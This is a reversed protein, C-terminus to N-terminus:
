NNKPPGTFVVNGGHKGSGPGLTIIWDAKNIVHINHEVVVITHGAEILRDFAHMLREIDSTHLGTTPEDFIFFIHQMKNNQSLYYALKVRQSEGGSLTSSSQGLKVYGLGVDSLPSLKRTISICQPDESFFQLAEDITMELTKDLLKLLKKDHQIDKKTFSLNAALDDKTDIGLRNMTERIESKEIKKVTKKM